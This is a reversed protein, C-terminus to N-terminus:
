RFATGISPAPVEGRPRAQLSVRLCRHRPKKRGLYQEREMGITGGVSLCKPFLEFDCTPVIPNHLHAEFESQLSLTQTLSV